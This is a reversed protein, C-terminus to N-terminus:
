SSADATKKTGNPRVASIWPLFFDKRGPKDYERLLALADM